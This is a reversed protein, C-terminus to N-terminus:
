AKSNVANLYSQRICPYIVDKGKMTDNMIKTISNEFNFRFPWMFWYDPGSFYKDNIRNGEKILIERIEDIPVGKNNLIERYIFLSMTYAEIEFLARWPAPLPALFILFLLFWSSIPFLLAFISLCQPFLYLIGFLFKSYKNCQTIHVLEHSLVIISENPNDRIFERNPFYIVGNFVTIYNTMFEKTFFLLYGLIKMLLSENKYKIEFSYLAHMKEAFVNFTDTM